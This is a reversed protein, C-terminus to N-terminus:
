DSSNSTHCHLSFYSVGLILRLPPWKLGGSSYHRIQLCLNQEVELKGLLSRWGQM